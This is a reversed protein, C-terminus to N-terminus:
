RCPLLDGTSLAYVGYYDLCSVTAIKRNVLYSFFVKIRSMKTGITRTKQNRQEMDAQYGSSIDVFQLPMQPPVPVYRASPQKKQAIDILIKMSRYKDREYKSMSHLSQVHGEEM